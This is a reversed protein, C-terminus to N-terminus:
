KEFEKEIKTLIELTASVLKNFDDENIETKTYNLFEIREIIEKLQNILEKPFGPKLNEIEYVIKSFTLHSLNKKTKASLYDYISDYLIGLSNKETIKLKKVRNKFNTLATRYLFEPSNTNAIERKKILIYNILLLSILIINIYSSFKSIKLTLKILYTNPIKEYIYNIDSSKKIIDSTTKTTDFDISKGTEGKLVKIKLPETYITEYKGLDINFFTFPIPDIVLEGEHLPSLIYTIKKTGGVVDNNKSITQSTLTDYLKFDKLNLSPPTISKVNGKGTIELILNIANGTYATKESLKATIFFNGVANNFNPPQKPLPKINLEINQSRLKVEKPTLTQSFFKQIFNPDFPDIDDMSPQVYAVITAPSITAKGEMIGFLATKVEAYYYTIGNIIETGTKIPPLEESILNTFTPPIYNPNASIPVATYFKISLTIQEGVYAQTKDVSAKVFMMEDSTIHQKSPTRIIKKQNSPGSHQSPISPGTVEIPIESTFYKERGTFVPIKPIIFRGTRKPILTYTFEYSSSIRGNIISFNTSSGSSYVNFDTIVSIDIRPNSINEGSLSIILNFSENIPVSQRDVLAKISVQTYANAGFMLILLLKGILNM